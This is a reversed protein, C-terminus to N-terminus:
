ANENPVAEVIAEKKKDFAKLLAPLVLLDLPLAFAITLATLIGMHKNLSLYSLALVLFGVVLCVSTVTLASGIRSYVDVLAEDSSMGHNINDKYKALFHITDDVVVGIAMGVVVAVGLDIYGVFIAWLGFAIFFPLTNVILSIIGIKISKFVFVIILSIFLIGLATGGILSDVNRKSIHAFVINTGSARAEMAAPLNANIWQHTKEEFALMERSSMKRLNVSVKSASKDVSIMSRLDLGYPLSLEYLLLYQAATVRDDPVRFFDSNNGNMNKNLRKYIDSLSSVFRVEPQERLWITFKDLNKLYEPDSVSGDYGSGISFYAYMVGTFHDNVWDVDQRFQMRTDFYNLTTEDLDNQLTWYVSPVSIIAAIAMIMKYRSVVGQGLKAFGRQVVTSQLKHAPTEQSRKRVLVLLLPAFLFFSLIVSCMVGIAVMNGLLQFPPSDSTNLTLFGIATTINALLIPRYNLQLSRQMAAVPAQGVSLCNFYTVAIHVCNAISLSMIMVPVATAVPALQIEFWGFVGMGAMSSLIITLFTLLCVTISRLMVLLLGLVLVFMLPYLSKIDAKSTEPFAMALVAQGVLHFELQPYRSQYEAVKSRVYNVAEPIETIADKGPMQLVINVGAVAGNLSVLGGRLSPENLAIERIQSLESASLLHANRVLDRVQLDDEEVFTYQMNTLSDVRHSYPTQWAEKTITEIASLTERNFVSGDRASIAILINDNKSYTNLLTEYAMLQPNTKGFYINYDNSLKLGKIGSALAFVLLLSFVVSLSKNELPWKILKM